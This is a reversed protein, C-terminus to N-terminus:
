PQVCLHCISLWLSPECLRAAAGQSEQRRSGLGTPAVHQPMCTGLSGRTQEETMESNFHVSLLLGSIM